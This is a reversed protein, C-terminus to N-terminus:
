CQELLRFECTDIDLPDNWIEECACVVNISGVARPWGTGDTVGSM